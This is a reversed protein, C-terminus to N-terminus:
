SAFSIQFRRFPWDIEHRENCVPTAIRVVSHSPQTCVGAVPIVSKLLLGVQKMAFALVRLGKGALRDVQVGHPSVSCCAYARITPDNPTILISITPDNPTVIISITPDNALDDPDNPHLSEGGPRKGNALVSDCLGHISVTPHNPTISISITPDNPLDNPHL